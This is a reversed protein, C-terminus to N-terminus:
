FRWYSQTVPGIKRICTLTSFPIHGSITASLEQIQTSYLREIRRIKYVEGATIINIGVGKPAFRGAFGIRCSYTKKSSPIDFNIVHSTGQVDIDSIVSDMSVLVRFSGSSFEKMIEERQIPGMSSQIVRADFNQAVLEDRLWGVKQLTNCFVIVRTAVALECVLSCLIDLKYDERDVAVYFQKVYQLPLEDTDEVHIAKRKFKNMTELAKRYERTILFVVQTNTPFEQFVDNIQGMLKTSLMGDMVFMKISDTKLARRGILDRVRGFTGIAVHCGKRLRGFDGYIDTGGLFIHCQVGICSGLAQIAEQIQQAQEELPSIILVQCQRNLIDIKQLVPVAFAALTEPAFQTQVIVDQDKLIPLMIHQHFVSPRELGCDNISRLLWPKLNMRDFSDVIEIQDQNDQGDDHSNDIDGYNDDIEDSDDYEDYNDGIDDRNDVIEDPNSKIENLKDDPRYVSGTLTTSDDLDPERTGHSIWAPSRMFNTTMYKLEMFTQRLLFVVQASRPISSFLNVIIDKSGDSFMEDVRDLVIVRISDTKLAGDKIIEQVCSPTGVVIHSGKRLRIRDEHIDAQNLCVHCQINHSGLALIVKLTRLTTGSPALVLAQCQRNFINVKQLVSICSTTTKGSNGPADLVVDRGKALLRLADQQLKNLPQLSYEHISRLLEPSLDM